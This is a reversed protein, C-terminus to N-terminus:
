GNTLAKMGCRAGCEVKCKEYSAGERGACIDLQADCPTLPSLPRYLGAEYAKYRLCFVYAAADQKESACAEEIRVAGEARQAPRRPQTVALGTALTISCVILLLTKM